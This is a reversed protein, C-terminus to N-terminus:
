TRAQFPSRHNDHTSRPQLASVSGLSSLRPPDSHSATSLSNMRDYTIHYHYCWHASQGAQLSCFLGRMSRDRSIAHNSKQPDLWQNVRALAFAPLPQQSHPTLRGPDPLFSYGYAPAKFLPLIPNRRGSSHRQGISGKVNLRLTSSVRKM